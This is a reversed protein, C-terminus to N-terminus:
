RWSPFWYYSTDLKIPISLGAWHPYFYVFLSFSIALLPFILKPFRRLVYAIAICMFPISPLYHYLFMIRPSAAWPVFFILYSFVVLGLKKNREIFSFFAVSLVSFLGFWFVAPNGMAYIRSVFGGVEDSTYLYVPRAMIPWSWWSSTYAHTAKLRTHYWWMQKQMGVFTEWTHGSLFMPIYTALYVLPPIILFWLYSIRFKKKLAFHLILFIPITWIASWKSAASLGFAIASLLNRDKIYLYIALLAFFLFYTDNMGIRNMVLLLGDLSLVAAALLALIEDEFLEKAIKYVLFVIGVGLLAAPIRWGFSNEGFIKMGLVMAEKALPPHTWEYAFGEPPTNWWEWAKPDGHLMVKATFAHYVEDFYENPPSGLWIVRTILSFVLILGLLWKVKLNSLKIEPFRGTFAKVEIFRNMSTKKRVAMFLTFIFFILNFVILFSIASPSFITRFNDTIWIYAYYLNALYTVSLGLYPILLLYSSSAAVLLPAFAVLLHREHIRTLFLFTSLFSIALLVYGSEKKKWIKVFSIGLFIVVLIFGVIQITSDPKWFGFIGWFNFANVSGYPYQDLTRGIRDFIFQLINGGTSFPIFPLIFTSLGILSYLAIKKIEWKKRMMLFLIVPAAFAAQPKILTGIALSISSLYISFPFQYISFVAFFATLSDVQGWFTSNVFIAPNFLYLSSFILATKESKTKRIIKYILFGTLVDALIAPLKYLILPSIPLFEKIKGLGWLVYLYGPLYDSWGNYFQSFGYKALSDSWAVFTNLDLSLTGYNTLFIRLVFGAVLLLLIPSIFFNNIIAKTKEKM